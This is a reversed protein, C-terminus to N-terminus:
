TDGTVDVTIMYDDRECETDDGQGDGDEGCRHSTNFIDEDLNCYSSSYVWVRQSDNDRLDSREEDDGLEYAFDIDDGDLDYEWDGSGRVHALIADRLALGTPVTDADLTFDFSAHPGTYGRIRYTKM